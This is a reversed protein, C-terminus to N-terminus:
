PACRRARRRLAQPPPSSPPVTTVDARVGGGTCSFPMMEFSSSSSMYWSTSITCDFDTAACAASM